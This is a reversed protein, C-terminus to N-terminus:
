KVIKLAKQYVDDLTIYQMCDPKKCGYDHGLYLCPSCYKDSKIVYSNDTYAGWKAPNTPGHLAITKVGACSALHLMGSNSCIVFKAKSIIAIIDNLGYKGAINIIDTGIGKEITSVKSYEDKSGTLLITINRGISLLKRGLSIYNSDDWERPKGNAGCGPHFIIVFRDSLNNEKWFQEAKKYNNDSLFYELKTDNNESRIGLPTLLELFLELEHKERSHLIVFDYNYHKHQNDTRFGITFRNSSLATIISNLRSWQETDIVVDYKVKRIERIFGIFKFPNTTFKYVRSIIVKDIYPITKIIEHNIPSCLFTIETDPYESKLKRLMPILLITDGIAAFKIIFIKRITGVPLFRNKRKFLSLIVLIPIGLIRDFLRFVAKRKM